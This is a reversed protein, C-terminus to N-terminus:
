GFKGARNQTTDSNNLFNGM